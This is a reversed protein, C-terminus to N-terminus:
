HFHASRAKSVSYLQTSPQLTANFSVPERAPNVVLLAQIHFTYRNSAADPTLVVQVQRLRPEHTLIAEEIARCIADREETHALSMSSFDLMGFSLISRSARQYGQLTDRRMGCRANLLAELDRAVCDKLQDLSVQAASADAVSQPQEDILRDLLSSAFRAMFSLVLCM